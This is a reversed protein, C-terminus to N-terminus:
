VRQIRTFGLKFKFDVNNFVNDGAINMQLRINSDNSGVLGGFDIYDCFNISKFQTYAGNFTPPNDWKCYPTLNNYLFPEYLNANSDLFSLYIAFGKDGANAFNWCNMDFNIQWRTSTYGSPPSEAFFQPPLAINIPSGSFVDQFVQGGITYSWTGQEFQNLCIPLANGYSNSNPANTNITGLANSQITIDNLANLSMSSNQATIDISSSASLTMGDNSASINVFDSGTLNIGTASISFNDNTSIGSPTLTTNIGGGDFQIQYPTITTSNTGIINTFRSIISSGGEADLIIDNTDGGNVINFSLGSVELTTNWTPENADKMVIDSNANIKGSTSTINIDNTSNMDLNNVATIVANNASTISINSNSDNTILSINGINCDLNIYTGANLQLGQTNTYIDSASLTLDTTGNIINVNNIDKDNMDLNNLINVNGNTSTLNISNASIIENPTIILTNTNDALRYYNSGVINTELSGTFISINEAKVLVKYEDGMTNVDIRRNVLSKDNIETRYFYNVDGSGIINIYPETDKDNFIDIQRSNDGYTLNLRNGYSMFLNSTTTDVSQSVYFAGMGGTYISPAGTSNNTFSIETAKTDIQCLINDMLDTQIQRNVESTMNSSYKYVTDESKIKLYPYFDNILDPTNNLEIINQPYIGSEIHITTSSITSYNSSGMIKFTPNNNSIVEKLVMVNIEPSLLLQNNPENNLGFDNSMQLGEAKIGTGLTIPTTNPDPSNIVNMGYQPVGIISINNNSDSFNIIGASIQCKNGLNDNWNYESLGNNVIPTTININSTIANLNIDAASNININNPQGVGSTTTLSIIGKSSLALENNTGIIKNNDNDDIINIGTIFRLSSTDLIIDFLLGTSLTIQQGATMNIYNNPNLEIYDGSNLIIAENTGSILSVSSSSTLELGGGSDFISSDRSSINFSISSLNLGGLPAQLNIYQNRATLDMYDMTSVLGGANATFYMDTETQLAIDSGSKINIHNGLGDTILSLTSESSLTLGDTGIISNNNNDSINIGDFFGFSNVNTVNNENMNLICDMRLGTANSNQLGVASITITTDNDSIEIRNLDIDISKNSIPNKSKLKNPQLNTYGNSM